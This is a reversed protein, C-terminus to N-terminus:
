GAEGLLSTCDHASSNLALDCKDDTRGAPLPATVGHAQRLFAGVDDRDVDAFRDAAAGFNWGRCRVVQGLSGVEDLSEVAADHGGLDIHTVVVGELRRDVAADLLQPPQVDDAGVGADAVAALGEVLGAFVIPAVHDVDVEGSDPLGDFGNNWVKNRLAM